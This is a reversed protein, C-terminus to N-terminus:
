YIDIVLEVAYEILWFYFPKPKHKVKGLANVKQPYDLRLM